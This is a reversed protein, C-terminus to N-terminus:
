LTPGLWANRFNRDWLFRKKLKSSCKSKFNITAESDQPINCRSLIQFLEKTYTQIDSMKENGALKIVHNFM